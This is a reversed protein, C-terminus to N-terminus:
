RTLDKVWKYRTHHFFVWPLKGVEDLCTCAYVLLVNWHFVFAGLFALPVALGWMCTALSYVDFLTDGGASFVGNIVVTNICRGIMYIALIVLMGRLLHRAEATLKLWTWHPVFPALALIIGM